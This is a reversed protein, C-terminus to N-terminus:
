QISPQRTVQCWELFINSPLKVAVENCPQELIAVVNSISIAFSLRCLFLSERQKIPTQHYMSHIHWWLIMCCGPWTYAHISIHTSFLHTLCIQFKWFNSFIQFLFELFVLTWELIKPWFLILFNSSVHGVFNPSTFFPTSILFFLFTSLKGLFGKSENGRELM